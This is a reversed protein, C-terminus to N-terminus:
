QPTHFIKNYNASNIKLPHEKNAVQLMELKLDERIMMDINTRLDSSLTHVTIDKPMTVTKIQYVIRNTAIPGKIIGYHGKPGSFLTQVGESGLIESSDRRRLAQTTQQTIGLAHALSVLSKGETLQKLVGQAKEDLLRQTEESKWQSIVDQKAEELTKDRAPIITDVKYWLYGGEQLSHIM